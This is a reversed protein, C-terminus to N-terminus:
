QATILLANTLSGWSGNAGPDLVIATVGFPEGALAAVNPIALSVLATAGTYTIAVSDLLSIWANCGTLGIADLAIPLELGQWHAISDGLALVAIGPSTPVNSLQLPLPQGLLPLSAGFPQLQPIGNAGSCGSGYSAVFQMGPWSLQWVQGQRGVCYIEGTVVDAVMGSGHLTEHPRPPAVLNSPGHISFTQSLSSLGIVMGQLPADVFSEPTPLNGSPIVTTWQVGDFHWQTNGPSWLAQAICGGSHSRFATFIRSSAPATGLVTQTTWSQGDYTQVQSGSATRVKQVNRDFWIAGAPQSPTLQSATWVGSEYEWLTSGQVAISRRLVPDYVLQSTTVGAPPGGVLSTMQWGSGAAWEWTSGHPVGLEDRGGHLVIRERHSDYALLPDSRLFPPEQTIAVWLQGTFRAIAGSISIGKGGGVCVTGAVAPWFALDPGHKGAPPAATLQQWQSGDFEWTDVPRLTQNSFGGQLVTRGRVPDHAMRFETRWSPATTTAIATWNVGDFTWTECPANSLTPAGVLLVQQPGDDFTMVSGGSLQPSTTPLVQIWTVGDYEWTDSLTATGWGGYLVVRQRAADYAMASGFRPPPAIPLNRLQWETGDFEWTGSTPGNSSLYGGFMVLVDRNADYAFAASVLVGPSPETVIEAWNSAYRWVRMGYDGYGITLLAGSVDSYTHQAVWGGIPPEQAM